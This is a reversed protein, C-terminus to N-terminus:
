GWAEMALTFAGTAKVMLENTNAILHFVNGTSDPLIFDIGGRSVTVIGGTNNFISVNKALNSPLATSVATAAFAIFVPTGSGSPASGGAIVVKVGIQGSGDGVTDGLPIGDMTDTPSLATGIWKAAKIAGNTADLLYGKLFSM